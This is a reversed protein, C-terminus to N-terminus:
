WIDMWKPQGNLGYSVVYHGYENGSEYSVVIEEDWIYIEYPWYIDSNEPHARWLITGDAAMALIDTGYFGAIYMTVNEDVGHCISGSLELDECEKQWVIEGTIMDIM